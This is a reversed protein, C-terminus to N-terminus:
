CGLVRPPPPDPVRPPPAGPELRVLVGRVELECTRVEPAQGPVEIRVRVTWAPPTDHVDFFTLFTAPARSPSRVVWGSDANRSCRTGSVVPPEVKDFDGLLSPPLTRSGDAGLGVCILGVEPGRVDERALVRRLSHWVILERVALRESPVPPAGPLGGGCGSFIMSLAAAGFLTCRISMVQGEAHRNETPWRQLVGAAPARPTLGDHGRPM